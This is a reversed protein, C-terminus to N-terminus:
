KFLNSGLARAAPSLEKLLKRKLSPIIGHKTKGYGLYNLISADRPTIFIVKKM